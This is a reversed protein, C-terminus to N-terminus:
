SGSSEPDPEHVRGDPTVYYKIIANRPLATESGCFKVLYGCFGRDWPVLYIIAFSHGKARFEETQVWTQAKRLTGRVINNFREVPDPAKKTEGQRKVVFVPNPMPITPATTTNPVGKRERLDKAMKMIEEKQAPSLGAMISLM